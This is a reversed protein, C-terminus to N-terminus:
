VGGSRYAEKLTERWDVTARGLLSSLEGENHELAGSVTAADSSALLAAYVEPLGAKELLSKYGENSLNVYSITQGSLRTIEEALESKSFSSDGALELVEGGPTEERTLVVVAAEAYDSRPAASIRGDGSSGSVVGAKLYNALGGTLNETYWGNRLIAHRLGSERIAQETERHEQAVGLKSGDARLVSTYVLFSVGAAKAAEIVAKHQATRTGIESSSILLLRDVGQLALVLEEPKTYDFARVEVGLGDAREPTRAGAVVNSSGVKEVLKEVVLRGLQGTAGTIFYRISDAM